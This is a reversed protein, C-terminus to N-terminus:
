MLPFGVRMILEWVRSKVSTASGKSVNSISISYRGDLYLV